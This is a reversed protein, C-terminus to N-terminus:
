WVHIQDSLLAVFPQLRWLRVKPTDWVAQMPVFQTARDKPPEDTSEALPGGELRHLSPARTDPHDPLAASEHPIM